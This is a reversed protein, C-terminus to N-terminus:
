GENTNEGTNTEEENESIVTDGKVYGVDNGGDCTYVAEIIDGKEVKYKDYGGDIFDGNVKFLWKSNEGFDKEGIGGISKINIEDDQSYEFFIGKLVLEREIISFLTDGDKIIVETNNYIDGNEEIANKDTDELEEKFGLLNVCNINISCVNDSKEREETESETMEELEDAAVLNPVIIVGPTDDIQLVTTSESTTETVATTNETTAEAQLLAETSTEEREKSAALVETSNKEQKIVGGYFCVGLILVSAAAFVIEAKYKKIKNYM